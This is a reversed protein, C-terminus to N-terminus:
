KGEKAKKEYGKCRLCNEYSGCAMYYKCTKKGGRSEM